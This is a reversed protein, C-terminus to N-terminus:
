NRMLDFMRGSFLTNHTISISRRHSHILGINPVREFKAQQVIKIFCFHKNLRSRDERIIIYCGICKYHIKQLSAVLALVTCTAQVISPVSNVYQLLHSIIYEM